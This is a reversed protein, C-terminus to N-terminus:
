AGFVIDDPLENKDKNAIYPFHTSLAQGIQRVASEIGEALQEKKFFARMTNLVGSWYPDGGTKKYIGEDGFIATQRDLHAVYILVANHSETKEMELKFFLERARDMADVYTCRSELFVRIEGSTNREADQIASVVLQQQDDSFLPKRKRKFLSFM